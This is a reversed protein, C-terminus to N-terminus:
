PKRGMHFCIWKVDFSHHSLCWVAQTIRKTALAQNLVQSSKMQKCRHGLQGYEGKGFTYMQGDETCVDTHRQGCTVNQFKVGVLAKVQRPTKEVINM